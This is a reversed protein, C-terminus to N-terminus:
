VEHTGRAAPCAIAKDRAEEISDEAPVLARTLSALQALEVIPQQAVDADAAGLDLMFHRLREPPVPAASLSGVSIILYPRPPRLVPPWGACARRM